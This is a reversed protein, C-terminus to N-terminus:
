DGKTLQTNDIIEEVISISAPGTVQVELGIEISPSVVYAKSEDSKSFIYFDMGDRHQKRHEYSDHSDRFSEEAVGEPDLFSSRFFKYVPKETGVFELEEKSIVRYTVLPDKSVIFLPGSDLWYTDSDVPLPVEIVGSISINKQSTSVTSCATLVLLFGVIGIRAFHYRM